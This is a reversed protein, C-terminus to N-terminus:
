INQAKIVLLQQQNENASRHREKVPVFWMNQFTDMVLKQIGEEDNIRRIMRVCIEPIKPYDPFELCIDRLIKIVRKRVSVGTDLIRKLMMDYYKDILDAKHLIFKGILDGAAERVMTSGDLFSYNVGRQMDDRSLVSPDEQVVMAMCKLAKSRVQISQETLVSLIQKLYIDFSNSFPRKSSLYKVILLASEEDIHSSIVNSSGRKKKSDGFPLIKATLYEKRDETLRFVEAMRSDNAPDDKEDEESGSEEESESGSKNRKKRKSTRKPKDIGKQRKIEGNADRYWQSIYFHRASHTMPDEEGKLVTLYDLLVRQLFRTRKEEEDLGKENEEVVEGEESEADKVSAIISDITDIKLKSQVADRRLRSAVVGLYDLSSLRLAVETGKNSFKSVLLKGLLSLLLEAAPWEPTNVTTLLDQLFNEFLPRYDIEETKSGCKKLFVSLFQVATAMANEYKSAVLVDRDVEIEPDIEVIEEEKKDKKDKKDGDKKALRTPLEVVCQILQLVLATPMQIHESGSLQYTRLSRKGSPLRAISALIDDLVLKRHKDYKGFVATVLKLSSLQLEAINEVFFPGVGLSSLHLVTTDTLSQIQLLESLLNVMETCRNYLKKINKNKVEHHYGRKKKASGIYGDQKSMEKYVPDYSPYITNQLHFRLFLTIRDIVEEMYGDQKSM